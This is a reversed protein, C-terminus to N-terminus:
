FGFIGGLLFYVNIFPIRCFAKTTIDLLYPVLCQLKVASITPSFCFILKLIFVPLHISPLFSGFGRCSLGFRLLLQNFAITAPLALALSGREWALM